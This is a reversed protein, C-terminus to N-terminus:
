LKNTSGYPPPTDEAVHPVRTELELMVEDAIYEDGHLYMKAKPNHMMDCTHSTYFVDFADVLSINLRRSLIEVVHGIKDSILVDPLM